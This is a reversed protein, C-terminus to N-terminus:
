LNLVRFNKTLSTINFEYYLKESLGYFFNLWHFRFSSKESNRVSM